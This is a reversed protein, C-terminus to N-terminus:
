ANGIEKKLCFGSMKLARYVTRNVIEFIRMIRVGVDSAMVDALCATELLM